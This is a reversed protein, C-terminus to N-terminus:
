PKGVVKKWANEDGGGAITSEGQDLSGGLRESRKGLLLKRPFHVRMENVDQVISNFTRTGLLVYLRSINFSGLYSQPLGGHLQSPLRGQRPRCEAARPMPSPTQGPLDLVASSPRM